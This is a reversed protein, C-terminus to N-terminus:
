SKARTRRIVFFSMLAVGFCMGSALLQLVDVAHFQQFRASRIFPTLGIIGIILPVMVSSRYNM